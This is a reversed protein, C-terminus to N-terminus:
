VGDMNSTYKNERCIIGETLNLCDWFNVFVMKQIDIIEEVHDSITM